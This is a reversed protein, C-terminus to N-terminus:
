RGSFGHDAVTFLEATLGMVWALSFLLLLRSVVHSAKYLLFLGSFLLM